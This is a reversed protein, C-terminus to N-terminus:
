KYSYTENIKIELLEHYKIIDKINNLKYDYNLSTIKTIIKFIDTYKICKKKFLNVAFENAVNFKIINSPKTKDLERFFKYVPFENDQIDYFHFNKNSLIEFKNNKLIYKFEQNLFHFLPITMDNQFGIM